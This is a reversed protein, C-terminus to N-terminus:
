TAPTTARPYPRRLYLLLARTRQWPQRDPAVQGHQRVRAVVHHGRQPGQLEQHFLHYDEGREDKAAVEEAHHVVARREPANGPPPSGILLDLGGGAELVKHPKDNYEKAKEMSKLYSM